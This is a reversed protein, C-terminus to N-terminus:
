VRIIRDRFCLLCCAFLAEQFRTKGIFITLLLMNAVWFAIRIKKRATDLRSIFSHYGELDFCGIISAIRDIRALKANTKRLFHAFNFIAFCDWMGSWLSSNNLPLYDEFFTVIPLNAIFECISSIITARVLRLFIVELVHKIPLSAFNLQTDQAIESYFTRKKQM